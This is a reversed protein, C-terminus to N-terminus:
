LFPAEGLDYLWSTVSGSDWGMSMNVTSFEGRGFVAIGELFPRKNAFSTMM